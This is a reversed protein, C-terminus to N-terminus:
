LAAELMAMIQRAGFTRQQSAGNPCVTVCLGCGRCLVEVVRAIRAVEDMQRAGYPCLSVCLGCGACLEEDVTAVFASGEVREKGLRVAARIAAGNAQAISEAALKPAHALGCLYIGDAEFELPSGKPNAELFFGDQNLPVGLLRALAENDASPVMGTSLVLWDADIILGGGLAPDHAMIRVQEGLPSM